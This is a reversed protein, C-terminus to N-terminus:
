KLAQERERNSIREQALENKHHDIVQRLNQLEKEKNKEQELNLNNM